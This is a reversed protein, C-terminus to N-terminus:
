FRAVSVFLQASHRSLFPGADLRPLIKRRVNRTYLVKGIKLSLGPLVSAERSLRCATDLAPTRWRPRLHSHWACGRSSQRVTFRLPFPQNRRASAEPKGTPKGSHRENSARQSCRHKEDTTNVRWM